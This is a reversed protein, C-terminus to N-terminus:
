LNGRFLLSFDSLILIAMFGLVVVGSVISLGVYWKQKVPTYEIKRFKAWWMRGWDVFAIAIRGGDLPLLPLINVIGLGLNFMGTLLLYHVIKEDLDDDAVTANGYAKGASVMSGVSREDREGTVISSVVSPATEPITQVSKISGKLIDVVFTSAEPITRHDLGIMLQVGLKGNVLEVDYTKEEGAANKVLLQVKDKDKLNERLEEAETISTGDVKLVTSGPTIGAKQAPCQTEPTAAAAPAQCASVSAITTTPKDYPIMMIAALVLGSGLILNVIPGAAFIAVRKLPHVRTLALREYSKEPHRWDEIRVFGGLPIWRFGYETEGKKFKFIKPGFGVFFEKLNLKFMKAVVAHGAEHLVVSICLAVIFILAGLIWLSWEPM